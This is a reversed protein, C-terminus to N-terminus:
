GQRNSQVAGARAKDIAEISLDIDNETTSWNSVSIRLLREGRWATAGIWATGAQQIQQAVHDTTEANGVRVLVQNLIVENVVEIGEIEDLGAAFRRALECCRDVLNEVGSRGLSRIAAWTVFGRARRSSEPVFDGGGFVRGEVQGTLYSATYGM